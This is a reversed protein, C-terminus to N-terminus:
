RRDLDVRTLLDRGVSAAYAAYVEPFPVRPRDAQGDAVDPRAGSPPALFDVVRCEPRRGDVDHAADAPRDLPWRSARRPSLALAPRDRPFSRRM